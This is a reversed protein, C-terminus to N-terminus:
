NLFVGSRDKSIKLDEFSDNNGVLHFIIDANSEIRPYEDRLTVLSSYQNSVEIFVVVVCKLIKALKKLQITYEYCKEDKPIGDVFLPQLGDFFKRSRIRDIDLQVLGLGESSGVIYVLQGPSFKKM